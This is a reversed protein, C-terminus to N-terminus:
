RLLKSEDLAWEIGEEIDSKIGDNLEGSKSIFEYKEKFKELKLFKISESFLGLFYSPNITRINDPVVIIYKKEDLDKQPIDLLKRIKEGNPRGSLVLFDGIFKKLNIKEKKM